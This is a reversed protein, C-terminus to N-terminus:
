THLGYICAVVVILLLVSYEIVKLTRLKSPTKFFCDLDELLGRKNKSEM